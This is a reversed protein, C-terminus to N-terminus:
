AKKGSSKGRESGASDELAHLHIAAALLDSRELIAAQRLAVSPAHLWKASLARGFREMVAAPQEGQRLREHAAALENALLREAKSRLANITDTANLGRLLRMCQATEERVIAEAVAVAQGRHDQNKNVLTGLHDLNYVYVDGLDAIEPEIDRRGSLDILFIPRHRRKRHVVSMTSKCLVPQDSGTSAIVIDAMVLADAMADMPIARADLRAALQRARTLSRNAIILNRGGASQLHKAVLSINEGAGILLTCSSQLSGFIQQALQIAVSAISVPRRGIETQTRIRKAAAFSHQSIRHLVPGSAGVRQAIEYANKVQGLIQSEGLVMSDMGSAVRILHGVAEEDTYRYCSHGLTDQGVGAMTAFWSLLSRADMKQTKCHLETRNCTSLIALEDLHLASRADGLVRPLHEPTCAVRARLDVPATTHNLGCVIVSM